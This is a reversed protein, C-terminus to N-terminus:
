SFYIIRVDNSNLLDTILNLDCAVLTSADVASATSGFTLETREQLYVLMITKLQSM